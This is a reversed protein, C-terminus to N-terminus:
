AKQDTGKGKGYGGPPSEVYKAGGKSTCTQSTHGFGNCVTCRSGQKAQGAGYPSPCVRAPQGDGFCNYCQFPKGKGKGKGFPDLSLHQADPTCPACGM